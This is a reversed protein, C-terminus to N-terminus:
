LELRRGGAGATQTEGTSAPRARGSAWQRIGNIDEAMTKSLPVTKHLAALLAETHLDTNQDYVDYLAAVIAQEIESGSYGEAAAALRALDFRGPDRRRKALHIAFIDQREASGPLDIFFIEDLRGKRLLEPPLTTVSNATAVVFVPASKEQLWTLFAGLVRATTGADSFSSSQSGAFAKEIEDVWLVAPAVSEAVAIARRINLETSGVLSSFMKGMDWRLLPMQWYGAIAKACLSKGCGQVGLLLIGRPAPLGFERAQASHAATRKGLWHKLEDLGGVGDIGADPCVYELLGSKRIVQEKEAIILGVSDAGLRHDRVLTKAFVNEAEKLSLGLAANVLKERAAADLSVTVEGSGGVEAIIRDLLAALEEARPLGFEVITIDKDLECPIELVPSVLVLSKYSAKLHAATERLKRVIGPDRLYPHFDLFAFIAPEKHDLVADLAALPDRTNGSGGRAQVPADAAVIGRTVSWLLCKKGRASAIRQLLAIVREEEWSVAYIIPYRARLLIDLEREIDGITNM